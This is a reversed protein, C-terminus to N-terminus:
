IPQPGSRKVARGKLARRQQMDTDFEVLDLDRAPEDLMAGVHTGWRLDIGISEASVSGQKAAHDVIGVQASALAVAGEGAQQQIVAGIGVGAGANALLQM